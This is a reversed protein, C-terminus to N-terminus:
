AEIRDLFALSALTDPEPVYELGVVGEYGIADLEALVFGFDIEGTGPQHRGPNDAIQVHGIRPLLARLRNVLDGEMVQAHYVDFQLKVREDGVEDLLALVADTTPLLFGPVDRTNVHEVLLTRGAQAFREAAFRVNAALTAHDGTRGALCNLRGVGLAQAYELGREVGDRFERVRAPDAAIGRDGAAWDGAPLNFLELELGHEEIRARVEVPTFDYPFQLEVHTFGAAAAHGFRDLFPHETFLMTLNAAFRPM